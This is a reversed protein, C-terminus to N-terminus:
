LGTRRLAAKCVDRSPKTKGRVEKHRLETEKKGRKLSQGIRPEKGSSLMEKRAEGEQSAREKKIVNLAGERLFFTLGREGKTLNKEGALLPEQPKLTAWRLPPGITKLERMEASRLLVNSVTM